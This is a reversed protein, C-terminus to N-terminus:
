TSKEIDFIKGNVVGASDVRLSNIIKYNMKEDYKIVSFIINKDDVDIFLYPQDTNM